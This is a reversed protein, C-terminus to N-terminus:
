KRPLLLIDIPRHHFVLEKAGHPEAELKKVLNAPCHVHLKQRGLLRAVDAFVSPPTRSELFLEAEGPASKCVRVSWGRSVKFIVESVKRGEPADFLKVIDSINGGDFALRTLRARATAIFASPPHEGRVYLMELAPFQALPGEPLWTTTGLVRVTPSTVNIELLRELDYESCLLVRLCPLKRLLVKVDEKAGWARELGLVELTRWEFRDVHDRLKEREPKIFVSSLFGRRFERTALQVTPLSGSWTDIHQKLLQNARKEAAADARGDAIALQLTIFEGRPDGAHQLADALVARAGDDGPSDWVAKWLQTLDVSAPTFREAERLIAEPADRKKLQQMRIFVRSAAQQVARGAFSTYRKAHLAVAEAIRPDPPFPELANVRKVATKWAGPWPISLLRDVDAPDRKNSLLLWANELEGKSAAKLPGRKAAESAGIARIAPILRPDFTEAWAALLRSLPSDAPTMPAVPATAPVFTALAEDLRKAEAAPLKKLRAAELIPVIKKSERRAVALAATRVTASKSSLGIPLANLLPAPVETLESFRLMPELRKWSDLPLEIGAALGVGIAELVWRVPPRVAYMTMIGFHYSAAHDDFFCIGVAWGVVEPPMPPYGRMLSQANGGSRRKDEDFLWALPGEGRRAEAMLPQMAAPMAAVFPELPFASM